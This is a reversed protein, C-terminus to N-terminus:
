AAVPADPVGQGDEPSEPCSGSGEDFDVCEIQDLDAICGGYRMWGAVTDTYSLIDFDDFLTLDMRYGAKMKRKPLIVFVRTTSALTYSAIPTFNYAAIRESEAFAQGRVSLAQRIRGAMYPHYLLILPQAPTINYGKNLNNMNVTYALYNLTNAIALADTAGALAACCGKATAAAEILGYFVAARHSYAKNRFEIANDELEWYSKDEFLRRHWGLAGGYYSFYCRVREGAAQYVKLKEGEMVERFTLGAAVDVIDFGSESTGTFDAVNFIQEYGTDFDVTLHYKDFVEIPKAPFNSALTFEQVKGLLGQYDKQDKVFEQVGSLSPPVFPHPLACFYQMAGAIQKKQEPDKYNFDQWNLNFIRSKM